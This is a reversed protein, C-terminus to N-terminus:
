DMGGMPCSSASSHQGLHDLALPMAALFILLCLLAVTQKWFPPRASRRKIVAIGAVWAFVVVLWVNFSRNACGTTKPEWYLLVVALLLTLLGNLFAHCLLAIVRFRGSVRDPLAREPPRRDRIRDLV